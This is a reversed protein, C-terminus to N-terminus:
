DGTTNLLTGWKRWSACLMQLHLKHTKHVRGKKELFLLKPQTDGSKAHRLLPNRKSLHQTINM